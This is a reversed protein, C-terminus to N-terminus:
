LKIQKFEKGDSQDGSNGGTNGIRITGIKNLGLNADWIDKNEFRVSYAPNNKLSEFTSSLGLYVEWEGASIAPPLSFYYTRRISENKNWMRADEDIEARHIASGRKLVIEFKKEKLLHGFGDNQIELDLCLSHDATEKLDAQKLIFRYGMMMGIYDYATMSEHKSNQWKKLVKPHYEMNLSHCNMYDLFEIANKADNNRSLLNTEGVFPTFRTHNNIWALEDKKPFAPDIYTDMDTSDSMLADNHFALRALKSGSFAEDQNLIQNGAINRIYQPRRVAITVSKPSAALLAEVVQRQAEVRPPDTPKRPEGYRSHHWEGWSGLFGAQINFLIDEYKNFIPGLQKIHNLIISMETPEPNSKGDFDYAARFMVSLGAKRAYSFASDVEDLINKDLPNRVYAGLDTEYLVLTINNEKFVEMEEDSVEATNKAIYWGREPNPITKVPESKGMASTMACQSFFLAGSVIALPFFKKILDM